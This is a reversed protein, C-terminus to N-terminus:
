RPRSTELVRRFRTANPGRPDLRGNKGRFLDIMQQDPGACAVQTWRDMMDDFDRALPPRSLPEEHSLYVMVDNKRQDFAIADGSLDPLCLLKSDYLAHWGENEAPPRDRAPCNHTQLVRVGFRCLGWDIKALPEPADLTDASWGFYFDGSFERLTRRLAGPLQVGLLTEVDRIESERAPPGIHLHVRDAGLRDLDRGFRELRGVWTADPEAFRDAERGALVALLDGRRRPVRLRNKRAVRTLQPVTLAGLLEDLSAGSQDLLALFLEDGSRRRAELGFRRALALREAHKLERLVSWRDIM